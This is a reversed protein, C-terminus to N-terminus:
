IIDTRLGRDVVAVILPREEMKVAKEKAVTLKAVVVQLELARLVVM